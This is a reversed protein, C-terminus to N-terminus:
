QTVENKIKLEENLINFLTEIETDTLLKIDKKLTKKCTDEVQQATYINASVM